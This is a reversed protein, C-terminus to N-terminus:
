GSLYPLLVNHHDEHVDSEAVKKCVENAGYGSCELKQAKIVVRTAPTTPPPPTTTTPPPPPPPTPAPRYVVRRPPPPAPKYVVKPPPAPAAYQGNCGTGDTSYSITPVYGGYGQPDATYRVTQTRGDPLLVSYCGNVVTPEATEDHGFRLDTIPGPTVYDDKVGYGFSYQLPRTQEYTTAPVVPVSAGLAGSALAVCAAFKLM